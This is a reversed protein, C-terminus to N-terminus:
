MNESSEMDDKWPKRALSYKCKQSNEHLTNPIYYNPHALLFFLSLLNEKKENTTEISEQKM